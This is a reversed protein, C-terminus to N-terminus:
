QSDGVPATTYNANEWQEKTLWTRANCESCRVHMLPEASMQRNRRFVAMGGRGSNSHWFHNCDTM